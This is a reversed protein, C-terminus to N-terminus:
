RPRIPSGPRACGAVTASRSKALLKAASAWGLQNGVAIIRAGSDGLCRLALNGAIPLRASPRTATVL